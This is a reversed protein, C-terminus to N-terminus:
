SDDHNSQYTSAQCTSASMVETYGWKTVECICVPLNDLKGNCGPSLSANPAVLGKPDAWAIVDYGM